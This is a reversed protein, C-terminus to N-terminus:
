KEIDAIMIDRATRIKKSAAPSVAATYIKALSRYAKNIAEKDKISEPEIGLVVAPYKSDFQLLEPIAVVPAKREQRQVQLLQNNLGAITAQLSAITEKLQATESIEQLTKGPKETETETKVTVEKKDNKAPVVPKETTRAASGNEAPTGGPITPKLSEITSDEKPENAKYLKTLAPSDLKGKEALVRAQEIVENPASCLSYLVRMSVKAFSSDDGFTKSVAMLKYAQAKKINCNKESWELFDSQKGGQDKITNCAEMLLAGITLSTQMNLTIAQNIDLALKDLKSESEIRKQETNDGLGLKIASVLAQVAEKFAVKTKAQKTDRVLQELSEGKSEVIEVYLGSFDFLSVKLTKKDINKIIAELSSIVTNEQNVITTKKM